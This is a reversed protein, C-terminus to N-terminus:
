PGLDRLTMKSLELDSLAYLLSIWYYCKKMIVTLSVSILNESVYQTNCAICYLVINIPVFAHYYM